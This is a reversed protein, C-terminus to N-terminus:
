PRVPHPRVRRRLGLGIFFAMMALGVLQGTAQSSM